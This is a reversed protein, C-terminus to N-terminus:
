LALALVYKATKDVLPEYEQNFHKRVLKRAEAKAEQILTQAHKDPSPYGQEALRKTLLEKITDWDSRAIDQVRDLKIRYERFVLEGRGPL